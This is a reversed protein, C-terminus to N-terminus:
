AEGTSRLRLAKGHNYHALERASLRALRNDSIADGDRGVEFAWHAPNFAIETGTQDTITGYDM